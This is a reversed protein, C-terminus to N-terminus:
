PVLTLSAISEALELTAFEYYKNRLRPATKLTCCVGRTEDSMGHGDDRISIEMTDGDAAMRDSALRRNRVTQGGVNGPLVRQETTDEARRGEILALTTNLKRRHPDRRFRPHSAQLRM